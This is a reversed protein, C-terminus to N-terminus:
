LNLLQKTGNWICSNINKALLIVYDNNKYVMNDYYRGGM